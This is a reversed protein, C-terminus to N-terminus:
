DRPSPSTYLLCVTDADEFLPPTGCDLYVPWDVNDRTFTQKLSDDLAFPAVWGWEAGQFDPTESLVNGAQDIFVPIALPQYANPDVIDENGSGALELDPNVAQYVQNAYDAAENAGDQLGFAILEAAIHNGLEAPGLSYDTSTNAPDCGLDLMTSEFLALSTAAGPSDVFRHNLLRFAAHSIATEQALKREAEDTPVTLLAPDFPASYGQFDQGLFILTDLDDYAAFADFCAVSFHFLNRAHVTPRAFDGRIAELLDENWQRAVTSEVAMARATESSGYTTPGSQTWGSIPALMLCALAAFVFVRIVMYCNLRFGQVEWNGFPLLCLCTQSHSTCCFFEPTRELNM